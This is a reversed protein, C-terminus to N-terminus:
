EASMMEVKTAYMSKYAPLVRFLMKGITTGGGDNYYEALEKSYERIDISNSANPVQVDAPLNPFIVEQGQLPLYQQLFDTTIQNSNKAQSSTPAYSRNHHWQLKGKKDFGYLDQIPLNVLAKDETTKEVGEDNITSKMLALVQQVVAKSTLTQLDPRLDGSGYAKDEKILEPYQQTIDTYFSRIYDKYSQSYSDMSRTRRIIQSSQLMPTLQQKSLRPSLVALSDPAIFDFQTVASNDYNLDLAKIHTKIVANGFGKPLTGDDIALKLWKNQWKTGLKNDLLESNFIAFNDAWLYISGAKFDVYVPQNISTQNNRAQYQASGLMTFRGALPQYVGQANISLPKLLYADLLQTKKVDSVKPQDDYNDFLQQYYPSVVANEKDIEITSSKNIAKAKISSTEIITAGAAGYAENSPEDGSAEIVTVYDTSSDVNDDEAYASDDYNYNDYNDNDQQASWARYAQSCALYSQKLTNRQIDYPTALIDSDQTEAQAVLDAYAQDHSDECYDDVYDSSIRQTDDTKGNVATLQADSSIEINSHYSFSQRRQKQLANALATKAAIPTNNAVNISAASMPTSQCGVLLLSGTFLASALLTNTRSVSGLCTAKSPAVTKM